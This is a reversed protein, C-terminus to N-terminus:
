FHSFDCQQVEGGNECSKDALFVTLHGAVSNYISTCSLSEKGTKVYDVFDAILAEDGGGHSNLEYDSLCVTEDVFGRESQPETRSFTYTNDDLTGYIEGKTGIIHIKRMSKAAGGIMNHTGTAGNAFHVLVSNHDSVNNDCKYVCRNYPNGNKLSEIREEETEKYGPKDEFEKWVYCRWWDPHELYLKKASFRCTDVLPCDVTCRTGAGAPANEPRFQYLGGAGSVSVPLTPQMLWMMLDIDHCSKALLM